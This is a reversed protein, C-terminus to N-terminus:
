RPRCRSSGRSVVAFGNRLVGKPWEFVPSYFQVPRDLGLGTRSRGLDDVRKVSEVILVYGGAAVRGRYDGTNAIQTFLRPGNIKIARARTTTPNSTAM